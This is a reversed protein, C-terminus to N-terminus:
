NAREWTLKIDGPAGTALQNQVTLEDGSLRVLRKLDRGAVNPAGGGSNDGIHLTMSKGADNITYTGFYDVSRANGASIVIVSFHGTADFFMSGRPDAGYPARENGTVSVLQWHGVLAEKLSTAPALALALSPTALFANALIVVLLLRQTVSRAIFKRTRM